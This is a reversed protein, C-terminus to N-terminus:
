QGGDVPQRHYGGGMVGMDERGISCTGAKCGKREMILVCCQRGDWCKRHTDGGMVGMGESGFCCTGVTLGIRDSRLV